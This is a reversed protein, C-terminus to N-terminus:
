KLCTYTNPTPTSFFRLLADRHRFYTAKAVHKLSEERNAGNEVILLLVRILYGKGADVLRTEAEFLREEHVRRGRRTPSTSDEDKTQRSPSTADVANVLREVGEGCDSFVSAKSVDTYGTVLQELSMMRRNFRESRYSM